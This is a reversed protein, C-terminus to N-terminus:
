GGKSICKDCRFPKSSLEESLILAKSIKFKKSCVSCVKEVRPNPLRDRPTIKTIEQKEHPVLSEYDSPNWKNKSNIDVVKKSTNKVTMKKKTAPTKKKTSAKKPKLKKGELEDALARLDDVLDEGCSLAIARIAEIM